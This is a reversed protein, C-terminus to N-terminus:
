RRNLVCVCEVHKTNPFMDVPTIEIVDYNESLLNLDRALTVPDCSVYIVKCPKVSVIGKITKENLGSRPPDVIIIDIKTTINDYFLESSGCYFEINDVLNNKKNIEADKVAYNNIEYGIVKNVFKSIYIGITGTGCYLDLVNESQNFNGYEIIKDYLKVCTKSNVQFFSDPSIRFIYNGLKEEIFMDGYVHKYNSNEKIYISDVINHISKINDLNFNKGVFIVMTKKNYFSSRIVIQEINELKIKDKIALLINNIQLSAIYCKDVSVLNYSDRSFLGIQKKVQFTLKNRYYFVNDSTALIPKVKDMDISGFKSLIEKVKNEKFKLQSEYNINQLDCGGCYNFYPCAPEVRDLSFEIFKTVKAICYNKKNKIIKAMVRDGPITNNVFVIKSDIYGIGRGEHDFKEIKLDYELKDNM